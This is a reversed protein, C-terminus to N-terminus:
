AKATKAELESAEVEDALAKLFEPRREAPIERTDTVGFEEKMLDMITGPGDFGAAVIAAASNSAAKSLDADTFTVPAAPEAAPTAAGRRSRRAAGLDAVTGTEPPM